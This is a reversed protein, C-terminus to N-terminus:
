CCVQTLDTKDVKWMVASFLNKIGEHKQWHLKGELFSSAVFLVEEPQFKQLSITPPQKPMISWGPLRLVSFGNEVDVYTSEERNVEAKNVRPFLLTSSLAVAAAAIHNSRERRFHINTNVPDLNSHSTKMSFSILRSCAWPTCKLQKSLVSDRFSQILVPLLSLCIVAVRM